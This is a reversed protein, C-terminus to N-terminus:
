RIQLRPLGDGPELTPEIIEVRLGRQELTPKIAEPLIRSVSRRTPLVLNEQLPVLEPRFRGTPHTNAPSLEDDHQIFRPADIILQAGPIRKMIVKSDGLQRCETTLRELLEILERQKAVPLLRNQSRQKHGW